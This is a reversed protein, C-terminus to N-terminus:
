NKKVFVTDVKYQKIYEDYEFDKIDDYIVKNKVYVIHGFDEGSLSFLTRANTTTNYIFLATKLDLDVDISEYGKNLLYAKIVNIHVGKDKDIFLKFEKYIKDYDEDLAKSIATCWCDNFNKRVVNRNVKM